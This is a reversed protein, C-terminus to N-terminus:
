FELSMDIEQLDCAFTMIGSMALHFFDIARKGITSITM